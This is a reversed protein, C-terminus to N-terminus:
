RVGEESSWCTRLRVVWGAETLTAEGRWRGDPAAFGDDVPCGAYVLVAMLEAIEEPKGYRAIGAEQPFKATAEEVTM